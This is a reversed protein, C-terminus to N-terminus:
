FIAEMGMFFCTYYLNRSILLKWLFTVNWFECKKPIIKYYKFCIYKDCGVRRRSPSLLLTLDCRFYCFLCFCYHGFSFLDYIQCGPGVHRGHGWGRLSQRWRRLDGRLFWALRWAMSNCGRVARYHALHLTPTWGRSVYLTSTFVRIWGCRVGTTPQRSTLWMDYVANWGRYTLLPPSQLHRHHTQLQRSSARRQSNHHRAKCRGLCVINRLSLRTLLHDSLSALPSRCEM